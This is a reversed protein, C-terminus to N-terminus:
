NRKASPTGNLKAKPLSYKKKLKVIGAKHLDIISQKDAIIEKLLDIQEAQLTLRDYAMLLLKANDPNEPEAKQPVTIEPLVRNQELLLDSEDTLDFTTLMFIPVNFYQAIRLLLGDKPSRAKFREYSDIQGRNSGIPKALETQSLGRGTRLLKLNKGFITM